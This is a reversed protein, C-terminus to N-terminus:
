YIFQWKLSITNDAIFNQSIAPNPSYSWEINFFPTVMELSVSTEFELGGFVSSLRQGELYRASVVGSAFLAKGIYKGAYLSTNDLYRGFGSVSRSEATEPVINLSDALTNGIINTEISVMDLNLGERLLVEFPQVLGVQAFMDGAALLVSSLETGGTGSDPTVVQGLLALIDIDSLVPVTEIRPNFDSKVPADYVLAVTVEENEEDYVRTEARLQITPDFNKFAENFVMAGETIQFNRDFYHIIGSKIPLTGTLSLKRPTNTFSFFLTHGQEATAQVIKLQENPLYFTCNKGTQIRFDLTVPKPIKGPKRQKVPVRPSDLSAELFPMTIDGELHFGRYSGTMHIEATVIGDLYVGMLPYSVPVGDGKGISQCGYIMDIESIKWNELVVYGEGYAIGDGVPVVTREVTMRSGDFTVLTSTPEIDAYTYPTDVKLDVAQMTGFLSPSAVPGQIDLNGTVLGGQFIVHYQLLIPDRMMAYNILIPDVGLEPFKLDLQGDYITGGGRAIIPMPAGSIVHLNGDAFSYSFDLIDKELSNVTISESNKSFQLTLPPLHPNENWMLEHTALTGSFGTNGLGTLNLLSISKEFNLELAFGSTVPVQNYTASLGMTTRVSGTDMNVLLLGRELSIGEYLVSLGHVKLDNRDMDAKGQFSFPTSNLSGERTSVDLTVLPNNLNGTFSCQLDLFGQLDLNGFREMKGSAIDLDVAWDDNSRRASISYSEGDDSGARLSGTFLNNRRSNNFAVEGALSGVSDMFSVDSFVIAGPRVNGMFEVSSNIDQGEQILTLQSRSISVEWNKRGVIGRLNFDAALRNNKLPININEAKVALTRGNQTVPGFVAELEPSGTIRVPGKHVWSAEIPYLEEAIILRGEAFGGDETRKALGRGEVTYDNWSIRVGDLSWQFPTIRGQVSVHNQEDKKSVISAEDISLVWGKLSSELFGHFNFLSDRVIGASSYYSANMLSLVHSAEFGEVDVFGYLAPQEEMDLMMDIFIHKNAAADPIGALVSLAMSYQRDEQLLLISFDHFDLNGAIVQIPEISIVDTITSVRFDADVPYGLLTRDFDVSLWGMPTLTDLGVLGSYEAVAWPLSVSFNSVDAEQEDGQTKVNIQWPWPLGAQAPLAIQMDLNYAFEDDEPNLSVEFEGDMISDFWPNLAQYEEVPQIFENVVLNGLSGSVNIGEESLLMAIDVPLADNIRQLSLKRDKYTLDVSVPKIMWRSLTSSLLDVRGNFTSELTSYNGSSKFEMHVQGLQAISMPENSKLSGEFEYRVLGRTGDLQLFVNEAEVIGLREDRVRVSFDNFVLSIDELQDILFTQLDPIGPSEMDSDVLELNLRSRLISVRTIWNSSNDEPSKLGQLPDIFVRFRRATFDGQRFSVKLNRITVASLLAPSISEYSLEIGLKKELQVMLNNQIHDARKRVANHLPNMILISLIFVLSLILIQVAHVIIKRRM